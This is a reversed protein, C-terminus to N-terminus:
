VSCFVLWGIGLLVIDIVLLMLILDFSEDDVVSILVISFVILVVVLVWM